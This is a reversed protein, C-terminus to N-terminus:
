SCYWLASRWPIHHTWRASTALHGQHVLGGAFSGVAHSLSTDQVLVACPLDIAEPVKAM